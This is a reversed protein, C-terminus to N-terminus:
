CPRPRRTPRPSCGRPTGAGRLSEKFICLFDEIEDATLCRLALPVDEIDLYGTSTDLSLSRAGERTGAHLYVREPALRLYAGIRVATDYITLTGIGETKHQKIIGHLMDFSRCRGIMRGVRQLSAEFVKLQALGIRRQHSECKQDARRALPANRIATQLDSMSAYREREDGRGPGFRHQYDDVLRDLNRHIPSRSAMM